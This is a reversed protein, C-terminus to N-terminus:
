SDVCEYNEKLTKFPVSDPDSIKGCTDCKFAVYVNDDDRWSIVHGYNQKFLHAFWHIILKIIYM